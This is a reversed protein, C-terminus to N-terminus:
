LPVNKQIGKILDKIFDVVDEYDNYDFSISKILKGDEFMQLRTKDSEIVITATNFNICIIVFNKIMTVHGLEVGKVSYQNIYTLLECYMTNSISHTLRM